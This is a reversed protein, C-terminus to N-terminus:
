SSSGGVSLSVAVAMRRGVEEACAVLEIVCKAGAFFHSALDTRWIGLETADHQNVANSSNQVPIEAWYGMVGGVVGLAYEATGQSATGGM